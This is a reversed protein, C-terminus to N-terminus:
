ADPRQMYAIETRPLYLRGDVARLTGDPKVVHPDLLEVTSEDHEDLLGDFADGSKLTVIFRERLHQRLLRDRRM